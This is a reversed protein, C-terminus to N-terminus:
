RMLLTLAAAAGLPDGARMYSVAEKNIQPLTKRPLRAASSGNGHRPGVQRSEPESSWSRELATIRSLLAARTKVTETAPDAVSAAPIAVMAADTVTAATWSPEAEAAAPLEMTM